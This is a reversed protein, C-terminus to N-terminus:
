IFDSDVWILWNNGLGWVEIFNINSNDLYFGKQTHLSNCTTWKLHLAGIPFDAWDTRYEVEDCEVNKQVSLWIIGQKLLKGKLKESLEDPYISLGLKQNVYHDELIDKTLKEWEIINENIMEIKESVINKRNQRSDFCSALLLIYLLILLRNLM